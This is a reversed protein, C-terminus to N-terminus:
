CELCFSPHSSKKEQNNERVMIASLSNDKKNAKLIYTLTMKNNIIHIGLILKFYNNGRKAEFLWNWM